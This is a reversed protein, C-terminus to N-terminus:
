RLRYTSRDSPPETWLFTKKRKEVRHKMVGPIEQAMVIWHTRRRIPWSALEDRTPVGGPLLIREDAAELMLMHCGFAVDDSSATKFAEYWHRMSRDREISAKASRYVTELWGTAPPKSLNEAWFEDARPSTSLFGALTMGRAILGANSASLDRAIRNFLWDVRGHKQAARAVSFLKDDNDALNLVLDRCDDGEDGPLEMALLRVSDIHVVGSAEEQIAQLTFHAAAQPDIGALARVADVVPFTDMFAYTSASQPKSGTNKFWSSLLTPRHRALAGWGAVPYNTRPLSRTHNEFALTLEAGVYEAFRDLLNAQDPWLELAHGIAEARIRDVRIEGTLLKPSRCLLLSGLFAERDTRDVHTWGSSDLADALVVDNLLWGLYMVQARVDESPHDLLAVLVSWGSPVNSRDVLKLYVLTTVLLDAPKSPSLLEGLAPIDAPRPSSLLLRYSELTQAPWARHLMSLPEPATTQDLVELLFQTDVASEDDGPMRTALDLWRRLVEDEHILLEQALNSIKIRLWTPAEQVPSSQSEAGRSAKTDFFWTAAIDLTRRELAALLDPAWRALPLYGTADDGAGDTMWSLIRADSVDNALSRLNKTGADSLGISPDIAFPVLERTAYLSRAKGRPSALEELPDWHCIGREDIRMSSPPNGQRKKDEFRSDLIAQAAPTALATLLAAAAQDAAPNGLRLFRQAAELAAPETAEWDFPNSRLLWAMLSRQRMVGLIAQTLAWVMLPRILPARPLWSMLAAVYRSAIADRQGDVLQIKFGLSAADEIALWQEARLATQRSREANEPRGTFEGLLPNAWYRSFWHTLKEEVAKEVHVWRWANGIGKGIIEVQRGSPKPGFWLEDVVDLVAAPDLAIHRWFEDFDTSAFNRSSLWNRLFARRTVERANPDSLAIATASRLIAAVIDADSYVELRVQIADDIQDRADIQKMEHVLALGLVHPLRDRRIRFQHPDHVAEFWGGDVIESVVGTLDTGSQGSDRGLDELLNRRSTTSDTTQDALLKRGVNAVFRVFEEHTYASSASRSRYKWDEYILREATIDGSAGIERRREIAVRCLRPMRMLTLLANPFDSRLLNHASLIHDLELDAFPGVSIELPPPSISPALKKLGSRWHEPRCTMLISATTEGPDVSLSLILEDWKTFMWNQNLGDLLVLLRPRHSKASFWRKLRKKWFEIDRIETVKQLLKALLELSDSTDVDRAAIILTLPFDPDQASQELVWSVAAWTKGVGEEGLVIAPQRPTTKWWAEIQRFVEERKVHHVNEEGINLPCDFARRSRDISQTQRVIRDRNAAKAQAYGIDPSTLIAVLKTRDDAFAPHAQIASVDAALRAANPFHQRMTHPACACLVALLPLGSRSETWDIIVVGIGYKEGIRNLAEADNAAIARTAALIWLDLDPYSDIADYLKSKLADLSLRTKPKYRKGEVGIKLATENPDSLVDIGGQPGSKAIRFRQGTVESVLDRVLGEFGDSGIAHLDCLAGHLDILRKTKSAM